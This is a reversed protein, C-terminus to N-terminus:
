GCLGLPKDGYIDLGLAINMDALARLLSPPFEEGTNGPSYWYVVLDFRGGTNGLRDITARRPLLHDLFGEIAEPLTCDPAHRIEMGCYSSRYIGSLPIGAPTMRPAGAKWVRSATLALERPLGSLDAEPHRVMLHLSFESVQM